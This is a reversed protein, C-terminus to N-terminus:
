CTRTVNMTWSWSRRACWAASTPELAALRAVQDIIAHGHGCPEADRGLSVMRRRVISLNAPPHPRQVLQVQTVRLRQGIRRLAQTIAQSV